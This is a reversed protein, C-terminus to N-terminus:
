KNKINSDAIIEIPLIISVKRHLRFTTSYSGLNKINKILISKKDINIGKKLLFESIHKATITGFLKNNLGIKTPIKINLSKLQSIIENAKQILVDEKKTNQKLLENYEKITSKTATIAYGNPILYNRAYGPKVSVQDYKLGLKEIDKKLIIKM